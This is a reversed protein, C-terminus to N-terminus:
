IKRVEPEKRDIYNPYRFQPMGLAMVACIRRDRLGLMRNLGGKGDQRVATLVFGMYVQSVGLSEATLSANQYALNADEAGFRYKYPEPGRWARIEAQGAMDYLRVEGFQGPNGGAAVLRRGDASFALGRVQNELGRLTTSNAMTIIPM